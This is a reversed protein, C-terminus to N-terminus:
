YFFFNSIWLSSCCVRTWHTRVAAPKPEEPDLPPAAVGLLPVYSLVRRTGRGFASFVRYVGNGVSRGARSM